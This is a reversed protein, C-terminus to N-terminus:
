RTAVFMGVEKTVQISGGLALKHEVVKRLESAREVSLSRQMSLIYAILPEAETIVLADEYRHLEINSFWPRLLAVGNEIRFSEGRIISHFTPGARTILEDIEKLDARGGTAAYLHGEPRLVRRIESLADTLGPVHYLMHNAIVADFCEDQFAIAQADMAILRFRKTSGVNRKAEHIMGVSFDSLAIWWEEPIRHLNAVWLGAQGCGLELITGRAPVALHDFVWPHWGYANTSFRKHLEIRANLNSADRYQQRLAVSSGGM